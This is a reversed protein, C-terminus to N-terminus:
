NTAATSSGGVLTPLVLAGPATISLLGGQTTGTVVQTASAAAAPSAALLILGGAALVGTFATVLQRRASPFSAPNSMGSIERESTGSQPENVHDHLPRTAVLPKHVCVYQRLDENRLAFTVCVEMVGSFHHFNCRMHASYTEVDAADPAM